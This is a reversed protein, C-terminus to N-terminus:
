QRKTSTMLLLTRRMKKRLLQFHFSKQVSGNQTFPHTMGNKASALSDQDMSDDNKTRYDTWIRHSKPTVEISRKGFANGLHVTERRTFRFINFAWSLIVHLFCPRSSFTQSDGGLSKSPTRGM